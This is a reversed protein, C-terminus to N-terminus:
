SLETMVIPHFTEIDCKLCYCWLEHGIEVKVEECRECNKGCMQCVPDPYAM